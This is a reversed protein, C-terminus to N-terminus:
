AVALREPCFLALWHRAVPDLGLDTFAYQWQPVGMHMAVLRFYDTFSDAIFHWRCSPDQFWVQPRSAQTKARAAYPLGRGSSRRSEGDSAAADASKGTTARPAETFPFNSERPSTWYLLAVRGDSCESDLDFAQPSIDPDLRAAGGPMDNAAFRQLKSEPLPRLQDLHNVHIRGFPIIEGHFRLSWRVDVGNSIALFAKFDEPLVYPYNEVEWEALQVQTVGPKDSFEVGCAAPHQELLSIVRLSIDDFIKRCTDQDATAPM